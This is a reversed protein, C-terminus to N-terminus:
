RHLIFEMLEIEDEVMDQRYSGKEFPRLFQLVINAETKSINWFM